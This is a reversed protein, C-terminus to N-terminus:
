PGPFLVARLRLRAGGAVIKIHSSTSLTAHRLKGAWLESKDLSADPDFDGITHMTRYISGVGPRRSQDNFDAIVTCLIRTGFQRTAVPRLITCGFRHFYRSSNRLSTSGGRVAELHRSRQLHLVDGGSALNGRITIIKLGMQSAM